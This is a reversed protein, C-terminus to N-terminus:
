KNGVSLILKPEIESIGHFPWDDSYVSVHYYEDDNAAPERSKFEKLYETDKGAYAGSIGSYIETEAPEISQCFREDEFLEFKIFKVSLQFNTISGEKIWNYAKLSIEGILPNGTVEFDRVCPKGM